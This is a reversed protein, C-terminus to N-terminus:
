QQFILYPLFVYSVSESFDVPPCQEFPFALEHTSHLVHQRVSFIFLFFLFTPYSIALSLSLNEFSPIELNFASSLSLFSKSTGRKSFIVSLIHRESATWFTFTKSFAELSSALIVPCFGIIVFAFFAM